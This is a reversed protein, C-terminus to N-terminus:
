RSAATSSGEQLFLRFLPHYLKYRGRGVRLLLAKETLRSFYKREYQNRMDRPSAEDNGTRAIDRLLQVERETVQALDSRFKEHELRKFIEPWFLEPDALSGRALVLLQRSVFALFYPHGLTKDYLWHALQQIQPSSDFVAATYERTEPLTFSSLYVKEYFRVAPEAFSRINSFYDSGASFCISCNVGHIAFEQFQDRLALAIGEASPDAFNHLDDLFFIVGNIRAPRIFQRWAEHLAHKLIATGSSLFFEAGQRDLSVGGLSVKNLKWKQVESRLRITLSDSTELAHTFTDLLCEAFCKYDSLETSVSFFVPLMAYEPASCIAAYKLLLSSKGFGWDGLIAFSPTRGTLLGQALVQQFAEVQTNRGIFEDPQAPFNPEPIVAIAGLELIPVSTVFPIGM